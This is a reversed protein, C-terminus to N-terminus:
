KVKQNQEYLQLDNAADILDTISEFSTRTGDLNYLPLLFLSCQPRVSRCSRSSLKLWPQAAELDVAPLWRSVESRIAPPIIKSSSSLM